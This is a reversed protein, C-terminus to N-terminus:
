ASVRMRLAEDRESQERSALYLHRFIPDTIGDARDDAATIALAAQPGRRPAGVRFEVHDIMGPGAIAQVKLLIQNAMTSLQRQWTADDVDVVLKRGYLKVQGTRQALRRGVASPWVAEAFEEPALKANQLKIKSLLKAARQM